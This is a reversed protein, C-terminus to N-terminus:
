MVLWSCGDEFAGLGPRCCHARSAFFPGPPPTAGSEAAHWYRACAAADKRCTAIGLWTSPVWCEYGCSERPPVSNVHDNVFQTHRKIIGFTTHKPDM